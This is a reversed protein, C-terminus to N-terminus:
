KGWGKWNEMRIQKRKEWKGRKKGKEGKQSGRPIPPHAVHRPCGESFKSVVLM